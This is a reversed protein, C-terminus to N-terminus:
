KMYKGSLECLYEAVYIFLYIYLEM